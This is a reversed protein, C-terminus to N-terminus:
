VGNPKETRRAVLGGLLVVLGVTIVAIGAIWPYLLEDNYLIIGGCVILLAGLVCMVVRTFSRPLAVAIPTPEVVRAGILGLLLFGVGVGLPAGVDPRGVLLGIGVGFLISALFCLGAFTWASTRQEGM